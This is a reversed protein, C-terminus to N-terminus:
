RWVLATATTYQKTHSISLRIRAGPFQRRAAGLLWAEPAGSPDHGIEIEEPRLGFLGVGLAKAIAEKACFLGAAAAPGRRPGKAALYAREGPTYVGKCFSEKQLLREFRSNEEMDTGIRLDEM